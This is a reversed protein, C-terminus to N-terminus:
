KQKTFLTISLRLLPRAEGAKEYKDVKIVEGEYLVTEDSQLQYREM